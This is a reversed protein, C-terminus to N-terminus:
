TNRIGGSIESSALRPAARMLQNEPYRFRDGVCQDDIGKSGEVWMVIHHLDPAAEQAKRALYTRRIIRKRM